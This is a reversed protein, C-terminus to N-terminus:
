LGIFILLVYEIHKFNILNIALLIICLLQYSTLLVIKPDSLTKFDFTHKLTQEFQISKPCVSKERKKLVHVNM